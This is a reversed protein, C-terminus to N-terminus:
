AGILLRGFGLALWPKLGGVMMRGRLIQSWQSLRGYGVLLFAAPDASIWCDVPGGAPTIIATGDDVLLRYRPGGRFRLEYAARQGAARDRDIYDPVISMVGGVVQLADAKSIAWTVRAARAIDLAHILQEGLLLRTLTSLTMARGAPTRIREDANRVSTATLFADVAPVLMDALKSMDREAFHKLHRANAATRHDAAAVGDAVVIDDRSDVIGGVLGAYIQLEAVLHAATQAANWDLGPVAANPDPVKRLLAATRCAAARLALGATHAGDGGAPMM